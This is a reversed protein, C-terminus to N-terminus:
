RSGSSWCALPIWNVLLLIERNRAPSSLSSLAALSFWRNKKWDLGNNDLAMLLVNVSWSELRTAFSVFSLWSMELNSFSTFPPNGQKLRLRGNAGIAGVGRIM